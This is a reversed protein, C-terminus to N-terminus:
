NTKYWTYSRSTEVKFIGDTKYVKYYLRANDITWYGSKTLVIQPIPAPPIPTIIPPPPPPPPACSSTYTIGPAVDLTGVNACIDNSTSYNGPWIQINGPAGLENGKISFVMKTGTASFAPDAGIAISAPTQTWKTLTYGAPWATPKWQGNDGSNTITNSDIVIKAGGFSRVGWLLAHDLKNHHVRASTFGGLQINSGQQDQMPELGTITIVMNYIQNDGIPAICLMVGNRGVKEITGDHIKINGLLSPNPYLQVGNVTVPRATNPWNTAGAYFGHSHLTSMTFHDFEFGDLVWSSVTTDKLDDGENKLWVGYGSNIIKFNTFRMHASKGHITIGAVGSFSPNNSQDVTFGIVKVYECNKFDFGKTLLTKEDCLVVISDGLAGKLGDLYTYTYQRARMDMTDGRHFQSCDPKYVGGDGGPVLVYIAAGIALATLTGLLNKKTSM